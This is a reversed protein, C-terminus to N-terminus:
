PLVEMVCDVVNPRTGDEWPLDFEVAVASRNRRRPRDCRYLHTEGSRRFEVDAFRSELQPLLEAKPWTRVVYQRGRYGSIRTVEDIDAATSKLRYWYSSVWLTGDPKLLTAAADLATLAADTSGTLFLVHDLVVHDFLGNDALDDAVRRIATRVWRKDIRETNRFRRYPEYGIVRWAKPLQSLHWGWGCGIDVARGPVGDKLAWKWLPSIRRHNGKVGWRGMAPHPTLNWTGVQRLGIPREAIRILAPSGTQAYWTAWPWNDIVAGSSDVVATGRVDRSALRDVFKLLMRDAGTLGAVDGEIVGVHWGASLERGLKVSLTLDARWRDLDNDATVILKEDSKTPAPVVVSPLPLGLQGCALARHCGGLITGDVAVIAAQMVGHAEIDAVLEAISEASRESAASPRLKAPDLLHFKPDDM